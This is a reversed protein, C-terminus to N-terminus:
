SSNDNYDNAMQAGELEQLTREVEDISNVLEKNNEQFFKIEDKLKIIEQEAAELEETKLKESENMIRLEDKMSFGNDTLLEVEKKLNSILKKMKAEKALCKEHSAPAEQKNEISSLINCDENGEEDSLSFCKIGDAALINSNQPMVDSSLDNLPSENSQEDLKTKLYDIENRLKHENAESIEFRQTIESKENQIRRIIADKRDIEESKEYIKTQLYTIQEKLYALCLNHVNVL